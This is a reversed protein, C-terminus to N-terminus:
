GNRLRELMREVADSSFKLRPGNPNKSDRVLRQEPTCAVEVCEGGNGSRSSKRWVLQDMM